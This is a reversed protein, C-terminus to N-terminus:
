ARRRLWAVGVIGLLLMAAGRGGSVDHTVVCGGGTSVPEPVPPICVANRGGDIRVCELGPSCANDPGCLRTCVDGVPTSLACLGGACDESVVCSEGVLALAPACISTGGVDVCDFGSPCEATSSCFSTCWAVDGREACIGEVCDGNAVCSGGAGERRGRICSGDRCHFGDGCAGDDECMRSCYSVGADELCFTSLCETGEDCPEGIGRLGAVLDRGVCGGCAGAPAACVEGALCAGADGVCPALCRLRGDGPDACYASICDTDATCDAQLSSDGAGGPACRGECGVSACYMDTPCGIFPHMPDCDLTCIRGAPTDACLTGVCEASETCGDGVPTCVEDVVGDCDDDESNCTEESEICTGSDELAQEIFSRYNNLANYAGPASGCSPQSRGDPSFIFSAVGWIRGDAGILPGGSDGSCVSPDVFVFGRMLGNVRKTTAFKTGSGGSPTQGYGVATFEAGVIASPNDFSVELPPETAPTSLILVAVDSGDQLNWGGPAPRVESVLYQKSIASTSSGVLVRFQSAPAAFSGNGQQVCHKATLILRPGIISATCASGATNYLFVVNPRGTERVGDVIAEAHSAVEDEFTPAACSAVGLAVLCLGISLLSSKMSDQLRSAPFISAHPSLEPTKM